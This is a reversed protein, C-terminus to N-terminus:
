RCFGPSHGPITRQLSPNPPGALATPIWEPEAGPGLHRVEGSATSLVFVDCHARNHPHRVQFTLLPLSPHHRPREDTPGATLFRTSGGAASALGVKSPPGAAGGLCVEFLLDLSNPCWSPWYVFPCDEAVRHLSQERLSFAFLQWREGVADQLALRTSDPSWCSPMGPAVWRPKLTGTDLLYVGVPDLGMFAVHRGDPSPRPLVGDCAARCEATETSLVYLKRTAFGGTGFWIHRSDAAWAFDVIPLEPTLRRSQRSSLDTLNLFAGPEAEDDAAVLESAEWDVWELWAVQAGQSDVQLQLFHTDFRGSGDARCIVTSDAGKGGHYRLVAAGFEGETPRPIHFEV